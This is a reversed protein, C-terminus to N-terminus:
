APAPEVNVNHVVRMKYTGPPFVVDHDGACWRRLAEAYADLWARRERLRTIRLARDKSALTPVIGFRKEPSRAHDYRSTKRVARAGLFKIKHEDAYRRIRDERDEIAKKIRNALEIDSLDDYEPPRHFELEIEEPWRGGDERSRFFGPPRKIRKPKTPWAMRIGPWSSGYRVLYAAVPNAMTYAIKDVLDSPEALEVHNTQEGSWMRDFDGHAANIHRSTLSHADQTFRCTKADPDSHVLHYHDSLVCLAHLKLGYRRAVVAFVYLIIQNTRRSPRLRFQRM